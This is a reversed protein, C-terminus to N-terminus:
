GNCDEQKFLDILLPYKEMMINWHKLFQESNLKIGLSALSEYDKEMYNISNIMEDCRNLQAQELIDKDEM